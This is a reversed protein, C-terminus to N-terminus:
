FSKVSVRKFVEFIAPLTPFIKNLLHKEDIKQNKETAVEKLIKYNNKENNYM